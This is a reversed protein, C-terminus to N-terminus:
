DGSGLVAEGLLLALKLPAREELDLDFEDVLETLRASLSEIAQKEITAFEAPIWGAHATARRIKGQEALRKLHGHVTAVSSLGVAEGIERITAGYGRQIKTDVLYQLIAQRRKRGRLINSAVRPTVNSTDEAPVTRAERARRFPDGACGKDYRSSKM